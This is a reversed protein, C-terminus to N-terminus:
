VKLDNQFSEFLVLILFFFRSLRAMKSVMKSNKM